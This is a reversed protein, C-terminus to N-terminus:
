CIVWNATSFAPALQNAYQSSMKIVFYMIIKPPQDKLFFCVNKLDYRVFKELTEMNLFRDWNM